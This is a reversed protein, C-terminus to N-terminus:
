VFRLPLHFTGMPKAFGLCGTAGYAKRLRFPRQMGHRLEPAARRRCDNRAVAGPYVRRGPAWSANLASSM